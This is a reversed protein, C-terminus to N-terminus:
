NRIAFFVDNRMMRLQNRVIYSSHMKQDSQTATNLSCNKISGSDIWANLESCRMVTWPYTHELVSLIKAVKDLKNIM